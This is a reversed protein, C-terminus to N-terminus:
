GPFQLNVISLVMLIIGISWIVLKLMVRLTPHATEAHLGRGMCGQFERNLLEKGSITLSSSAKPCSDARGGIEPGLFLISNGGIKGELRPKQVALLQAGSETVVNKVHCIKEISKRLNSILRLTPTLKLDQSM